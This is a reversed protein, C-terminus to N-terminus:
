FLKILSVAGYKRSSGKNAESGVRGSSHSRERGWWSLEKFLRRRKRNLARRKGPIQFIREKDLGLGEQIFIGKM